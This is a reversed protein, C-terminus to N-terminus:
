YTHEASRSPIIDYKSSGLGSITTDRFDTDFTVPLPLGIGTTIGYPNADITSGSYDSSETTYRIGGTLTLQDIPRWDAQGFVAFSKRGQHYDTNIQTFRSDEYFLTTGFDTKDRLYYAGVVWGFRGM